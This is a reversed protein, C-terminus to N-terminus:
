VRLIPSFLHLQEGPPRGRARAPGRLEFSSLPPVIAPFVIWAVVSPPQLQAIVQPTQRTELQPAAFYECCPAGVSTVDSDHHCCPSPAQMRTGMAVCRYGAVAPLAATLLIVAALASAAFRARMDGTYTMARSQCRAAAGPAPGDGTTM